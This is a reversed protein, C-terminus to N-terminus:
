RCALVVDDLVRRNGTLVNGLVECDCFGGHEHAFRKVVRLDVLQEDCWQEVATLGGDCSRQQARLHCALCADPCLAPVLSLSTMRRLTAPTPATRRPGDVPRPEDGGSARAM